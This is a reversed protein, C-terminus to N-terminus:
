VMFRGLRDIQGLRSASRPQQGEAHFVYRCCIGSSMDKLEALVKLVKLARKRNPGLKKKKFGGISIMDVSEKMNGVTGYYYQYM